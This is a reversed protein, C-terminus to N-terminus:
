RGHPGCIGMCLHVNVIDHKCVSGNINCSFNPCITHQGTSWCSEQTVYSGHSFLRVVSRKAYPPMQLHSKTLAKEREWIVSWTYGNSQLCDLTLLSARVDLLFTETRPLRPGTWLAGRMWVLMGVRDEEQLRWRRRVYDWKNRINCSHCHPAVTIVRLIVASLRPDSSCITSKVLVEKGRRKKMREANVHSQIHM